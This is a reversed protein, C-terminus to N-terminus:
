KTINGSAQDKDVISGQIAREQQDQHQIRAWDSSHIENQIKAEGNLLETAKLLNGLNNLIDYCM